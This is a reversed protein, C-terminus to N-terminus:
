IKGNTNQDFRHFWFSMKFNGSRLININTTLHLASGKKNKNTVLNWFHGNIKLFPGLKQRNPPLENPHDNVVWIRM